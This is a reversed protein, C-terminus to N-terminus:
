DHNEFHGIFVPIPPERQFLMAYQSKFHADALPDLVRAVLRVFDPFAMDSAFAAGFPNRTLPKNSASRLRRISRDIRITRGRPLHM